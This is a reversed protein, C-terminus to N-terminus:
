HRGCTCVPEGGALQEDRCFDCKSMRGSGAQYQPASYPCAWECYGCGMCKTEDISVIGHRDQNMATTPCVEVCPADQCHNCRVPYTTVLPMNGNGDPEFAILKPWSVDMPLYHEIKCAILCACCRVCKSLDIVMGWRM